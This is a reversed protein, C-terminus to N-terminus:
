IVETLPEKKWKGYIKDEAEEYYFSFYIGEEADPKAEMVLPKFGLQKAKESDNTYMIGESEVLGNYPLVSNESVFKVLM